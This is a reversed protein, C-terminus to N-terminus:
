VNEGRARRKDRSRRLSQSRPLCAERKSRKDNERGIELLEERADANRRAVLKANAVDPDSPGGRTNLDLKRVEHLFRSSLPLAEELNETMGHFVPIAPHDGREAYVQYIIRQNRDMGTPVLRLDPRYRRLELAVSDFDQSQEAVILGSSTRTEILSM